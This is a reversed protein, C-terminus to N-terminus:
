NRNARRWAAVGLGALGLLAGWKLLRAPRHELVDIRDAAMLLLWRRAKYDPVRYAVRRLVGSLGRTPLATSFVPTLTLGHGVLPEESAQQRDPQLWHASALPQPPQQEQPVGPRQLPSSDSGIGRQVQLGQVESTM